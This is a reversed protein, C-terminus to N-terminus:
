SNASPQVAMADEMMKDMAAKDMGIKDIASQLKDRMETDNQRAAMCINTMEDDGVFTDGEKFTIIKLDNNTILASQATPLDIVALDATGNSLAMFVEATTGYNAGKEADPIQDLLPVWGTGNQTTVKVKKGSLDSLGTINEYESGKKVVVCNTRYYYPETFLHAM